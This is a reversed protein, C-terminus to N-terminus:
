SAEGETEARLQAAVDILWRMEQAIGDALEAHKLEDPLVDWAYTEVEFHALEHRKRYGTLDLAKFFALIDDRATRLPGFADLYIPVHFHVRWEDGITEPHEGAEALADSLDDYFRDGDIVTQHLYRPEHFRRLCDLIAVGDSASGDGAGIDREDRQDGEGGGVFPARVASSVQVKGLRIGAERYAELAAAQDDFMVAAHCVDHCVRLQQRVASKHKAHREVQDLMPGLHTPRDIMCGPEPELDVHILYGLHDTYQWLEDSLRALMQAAVDLDVDDGRWGIPLTSISGSDNGDGRGKLLGFLIAALDRTYDLRALNDWSPRYM